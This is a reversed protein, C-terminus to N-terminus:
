DVLSSLQMILIRVCEQLILYKLAAPKNHCETEHRQFLNIVTFNKGSRVNIWMGKPMDPFQLYLHFLFPFLYDKRFALKDLWSQFFGCFFCRSTLSLDCLLQATKTENLGDPKLQKDKSVCLQSVCFM